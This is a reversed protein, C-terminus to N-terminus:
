RKEGESKMVLDTLSEFNRQVANVKDDKAKLEKKLENIIEKM